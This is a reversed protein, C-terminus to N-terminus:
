PRARRMFVDHGTFGAMRYGARELRDVVPNDQLRHAVLLTECCVIRPRLATWDISDLVELELGEVDISMFDFGHAFRRTWELEELIEMVPRVSVEVTDVRRRGPLHATKELEKVRQVSFTNFVAGEYRHYALTGSVAGVGCNVFVDRPRQRDFLPKLDPNPDICVGVGGREYFLYSNSAHIPWLCGIDLYTVPEERRGLYHAILLDEAVQAYSVRRHREALESM